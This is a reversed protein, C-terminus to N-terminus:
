SLEQKRHEGYLRTALMTGHHDCIHPELRTRPSYENLRDMWCKELEILFFGTGAARVEDAHKTAEPHFALDFRKYILSSRQFAESYQGRLLLAFFARGHTHPACKRVDGYEVESLVIGSHESSSQLTGGFYQARPIRCPNQQECQKKADVIGSYGLSTPKTCSM